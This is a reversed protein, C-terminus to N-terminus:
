LKKLKKQGYFIINAIVIAIFVGEFPNIIKNFIFCFLGIICGYIIKDNDKIPSYEPITALFIIAFLFESNLLEKINYIFGFGFLTGFVSLILSTIFASIPIEKKYSPMMLFIIFTIILLLSNTTGIGGISRGMFMDLTTLATDVNMEYINFYNYKNLLLLILIIILKYIAFSNFNRQKFYLNAINFLSILFVFLLLNINIPLCLTLIAFYIPNYDYKLKNLCENDKKIYKLYLCNIGYTIFIAALVLLLPKLIYTFRILGKNYLLIGNKYVSYITLILINIYYILIIRKNTTMTKIIGSM